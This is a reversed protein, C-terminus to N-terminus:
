ARILEGGTLERVLTVDNLAMQGDVKPSDDDVYVVDARMGRLPTDSSYIAVQGGGPLDVRAAGESFTVSYDHERTGLRRALAARADAQWKSLVLVRKGAQADRLIGDATYRNM